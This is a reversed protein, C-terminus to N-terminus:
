VQEVSLAASDIVSGTSNPRPYPVGCKKSASCTCNTPCGGGRAGFRAGVRRAHATYRAVFAPDSASVAASYRWFAHAAVLSRPLLMAWVSEEFQADYRPSEYMWYAEAHKQHAGDNRTCNIGAFCWPDGWLCVEGGLISGPAAAAAAAAAPEIGGQAIDYWLKEYGIPEQIYFHPAACEVADFGAAAASAASFKSWTTLVVGSGPAAAKTDTFIEEWGAARKGSGALAALVAVEFARFSATDCAGVALTEDGGIHFLEDPFLGAMEQVLARVVTISANAPDAYLTKARAADCYRLLPM